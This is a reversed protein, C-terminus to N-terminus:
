KSSGPTFMWSKDVGSYTNFQRLSEMLEFKDEPTGSYGNYANIIEAAYPSFDYGDHTIKIAATVADVADNYRKLEQKSNDKPLPIDELSLGYNQVYENSYIGEVMAPFLINNQFEKLAMKEQEKIQSERIAYAQSDRNYLSKYAENREWELMQIKNNYDAQAKAGVESMTNTHRLDELKIKYGYDAEMVEVALKNSYEMIEKQNAHGIDILEKQEDFQRDLLSDQRAVDRGYIYDEYAMKQQTDYLEKQLGFGSEFGWQQIGALNKNLNMQADTVQGSYDRGLQLKQIDMDHMLQWIRNRIDDKTRQYDSRASDERQNRRIDDGTVHALGQQSHQIGLAQVLQDTVLKDQYRQQDIEKKRAEFEKTAENVSMEGEQIWKDRMMNLEELQSQYNKELQSMLLEHQQQANMLMFQSQQTIQAIMNQYYASAQQLLGDLNANFGPIGSPNQNFSNHADVLQGGEETMRFIGGGTQITSGIGPRDNTGSIYSLGDRIDVNFKNGSTDIGYSSGSTHHESAVPTTSPDTPTSGHSQSQVGQPTNHSDVKVGGNDTMRFIGGGTQITSGIPPRENTDKIYSVGNRIDVEFRNGSLDVGYSSGSTAHPNGTQGAM